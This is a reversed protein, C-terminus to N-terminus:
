EPAQEGLNKFGIGMPLGVSDIFERGGIKATIQLRAEGEEPAPGGARDVLAIRHVIGNMAERVTATVAEAGEEAKFAGATLAASIIMAEERDHESLDPVIRDVAVGDSYRVVPIAHVKTALGLEAAGQTIAILQLYDKEGAYVDTAQTLTIVRLQWSIEIRNGAITAAMEVPGQPRPIQAVFDVGRNELEAYLESSEDWPKYSAVMVKAGPQLTAADVMAMHAATFQNGVLVVALSNMARRLAFSVVRTEEVTHLHKM